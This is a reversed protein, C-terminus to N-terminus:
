RKHLFKIKKDYLVTSFFMLILVYLKTWNALEPIALQHWGSAINLNDAM